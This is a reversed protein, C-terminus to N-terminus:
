VLQIRTTLLTVIPDPLSLSIESRSFDIILIFKLFFSAIFSLLGCFFSNFRQQTIKMFLLSTM